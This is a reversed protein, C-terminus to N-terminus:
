QSLLGGPSILVGPGALAFDEEAVVEAEEDEEVAAEVGLDVFGLSGAGGGGGEALFVCCGGYDGGLALVERRM